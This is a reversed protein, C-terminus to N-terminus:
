LQSLTEVWANFRPCKSRINNLGITDAIYFGYLVKEYGNIIRKLRHSPSNEKTTNILEPNPYTAITDVLEQKGILENQPITNEFTKVDYFLLGEFEHLQMYPIFFRQLKSQIDAKMAQEITCMRTNKDAIAQAADWGPFHYKSYLGYYDILTSVYAKESLIHTEIQKKLIDWKVIGGHSHKILPAFLCIGKSFFFPSLISECFEKETPGECIIILRKM